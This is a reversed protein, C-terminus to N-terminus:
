VARKIRNEFRRQCLVVRLVWTRTRKGQEDVITAGVGFDVQAEEGPQSEMRWVREPASAKIKRVYRKVCQYTEAFGHEVVLDQYIRRASLGKEVKTAIDSAYPECGSRRGAKARVATPGPTSITCKSCSGAEPGPIPITCKASAQAYRVVTRRNVRLERAIRRHSWGRAHM